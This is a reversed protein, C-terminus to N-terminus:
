SVDREVFEWFRGPKHWGMILLRVDAKRVYPTSEHEAIKRIRASVNSKSTAQVGVVENERLCLVDVIGWLDKRKRAFADWHEVVWCFYGRKRMERLTLATPTM